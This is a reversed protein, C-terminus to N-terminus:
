RAGARGTPLFLRARVTMGWRLDPDQKELTVIARYFVAGSAGYTPEQAVFSLRGRPTRNDLAAVVLDVSQNRAINAAGWEDLDEIEVQLRAVGQRSM